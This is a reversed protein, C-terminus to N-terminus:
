KPRFPLSSSWFLWIQFIRWGYSLSVATQQNTSRVKRGWFYGAVTFFFPMVWRGGDMVVLHLCRSPLDSERGLFRTHLLVVIFVAVVRICDIGSHHFKNSPEPALSPREAAMSGGESGTGRDLIQQEARGDRFGSAQVGPFQAARRHQIKEGTRSWRKSRLSRPSAM